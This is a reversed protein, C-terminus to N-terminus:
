NVVNKPSGNSFAIINSCIGAILLSRAGQSAWAIHPTIYCNKLHQLEIDGKPPEITLVDLIASFSPTNSLHKHLDQDNIVPGRSTNILIADDKMKKLMTSGVMGETQATLPMHLSLVDSKKIVEDEPLIEGEGEYRDPYKSAVIVRMGFSAAVKSVATGINGSGIIGMNMSSLDRISHDYFTFDRTRGWRGNKVENFYYSSKNLVALLAAFVHQTVSLTSYGKVNSVPIGASSTAILDVNNYGTAAVCIYKCSPWHDLSQSDVLYKNVIIIDAHAGREIGENLSSYDYLKVDGLSRLETLDIDGIDVTGSDLFVIEM